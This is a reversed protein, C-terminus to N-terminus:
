FTLLPWGTGIVNAIPVAGMYRGDFSREITTSLPLFEDRGVCRCGGIRPLPNGQGDRAFIPGIDEGSVVFRHDIACYLNGNLGGVSKLLAMGNPLWGRAYILAAFPAPPHFLVVEGRQTPAAGLRIWYLGRPMSSSDNVVLQHGSAEIAKGTSFAAVVIAAALAYLRLTRVVDVRTM